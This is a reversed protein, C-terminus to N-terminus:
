SLRRDGIRPYVTKEFRQRAQATTSARHRVTKQELWSEAYQRFTAQGAAPDIYTGDATALTMRAVYAEAADRTDFSKAREDGNALVYRARWRKGTGYRATRVRRGTSKDRVQWRDEVHGPM